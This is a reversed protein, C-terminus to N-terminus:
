CSIGSWSEQEFMEVDEDRDRVLSSSLSALCRAECQSSGIVLVVAFTPVTNVDHRQQYGVVRGERNICDVCHDIVQSKSLGGSQM